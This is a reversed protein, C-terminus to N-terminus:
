HGSFHDVIADVVFGIGAARLLTVVLRARGGNVSDMEEDTLMENVDNADVQNM